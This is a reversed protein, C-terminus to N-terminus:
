EDEGWCEQAADFLGTTIGSAGAICAKASQFKGQQYLDSAEKALFQVQELLDVVIGKETYIALFKKANDHPDSM